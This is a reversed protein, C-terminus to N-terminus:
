THRRQHQLMGIRQTFRRGCTICEFPKEKEPIIPPPPPPPPTVPMFKKKKKQGPQKNKKGKKPKGEGTASINSSGHTMWHDGILPEGGSLSNKEKKVSLNQALGTPPMMPYQCDPPFSNQLLPQQSMKSFNHEQKIMKHPDPIQLSVSPHHQNMHMPMGMNPNGM